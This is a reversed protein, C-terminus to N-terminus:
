IHRTHNGTEKALIYFYAQQVSIFEMNMTVIKCRYFNSICMKLTSCFINMRKGQFPQRWPSTVQYDPFIRITKLLGMLSLLTLVSDPM